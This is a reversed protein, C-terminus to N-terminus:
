TISKKVGIPVMPCESEAHTLERLCRLRANELKGLIMVQISHQSEERQELTSTIHIDDLSLPTNNESSLQHVHNLPRQPRTQQTPFAISLFSTMSYVPRDTPAKMVIIFEQETSAPLTFTLTKVLDKTEPNEIFWARLTLESNPIMSGDEYEFPLEERLYPGFIEDASYEKSM